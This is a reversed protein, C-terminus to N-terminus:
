LFIGLFVSLIGLGVSIIGLWCAVRIIIQPHKLSAMIKGFVTDKIEIEFTNKSQPKIHGLHKRYWSNLVVTHTEKGLKIQYRDEKNYEKLFNEDISLAECYVNEGTDSNTIKIVTRETIIPNDIWIWGSNIDNILAAFVRYKM